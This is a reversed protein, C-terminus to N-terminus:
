KRADYDPPLDVSAYPKRNSHYSQFLLSHPRSQQYRRYPKDDSRYDRSSYWNAIRFM